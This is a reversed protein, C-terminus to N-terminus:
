DRRIIFETINVTDSTVACREDVGFGEVFVIGDDDRCIIIDDRKEVPVGNENFLKKLSKTCNRGAPRFKDSEKRATLLLNGKIKDSDVTIKLCSGGDQTKSGDVTVVANHLINKGYSCEYEWYSQGTFDPFDIYGKRCRVFVGNKIQTLGGSTLISEIKKYDNYEPVVGTEATIIKRILRKRIATHYSNLLQANYRGGDRIKLFVDEVANEIYDEDENLSTICREASLEFSSNIEKLQPIVNLRIRNRSYEADFNTKDTVFPINNINCYEEIEARSCNILPRIINDRVAPISCLGKLGSGRTFNFLFTETRDNLNHATAIKGNKCVSGLYEYRLRRGCEELGEGTKAAEEPVNIRERLLEVGLKKCQEKVFREDDDAAKGRICHNVHAAFVNFNLEEKLSLLAYLLSMSDAGGSLAVCINDGPEIMNFDAVTQRIKCIM